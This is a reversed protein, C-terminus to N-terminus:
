DFPVCETLGNDGNLIGVSRAQRFAICISRTVANVQEHGDERAGKKGPADIADECSISSPYDQSGQGHNKRGRENRGEDSVPFSAQASYHGEEM